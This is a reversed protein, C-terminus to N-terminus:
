YMGNQAVHNEYARAAAFAAAGSLLEHSISAEHAPADRYENYSDEHGLSGLTLRTGNMVACQMPSATLSVWQSYSHQYSQLLQIFLLLIDIFNLTNRPLIM